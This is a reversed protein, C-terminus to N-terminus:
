LAAVINSVTYCLGNATTDMFEKVDREPAFDLTYLTDGLSATDITSNQDTSGGYDRLRTENRGQWM